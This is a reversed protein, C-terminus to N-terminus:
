RLRQSVLVFYSNYKIYWDDSAVSTLAYLSYLDLPFGVQDWDKQARPDKADM